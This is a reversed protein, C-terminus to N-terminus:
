SPTPLLLNSGEHMPRPNDHTEAGIRRRHANPHIHRSGIARLSRHIESAPKRGNCKPQRGHKSAHQSRRDPADDRRTDDRRGTLSGLGAAIRAASRGAIRARLGGGTSRFRGATGAATGAYPCTHADGLGLHCIRVAGNGHWACITVGVATPFRDSCIRFEIVVKGSIGEAAHVLVHTAALAMRVQNELVYTRLARITVSVDMPTLKTGIACIAMGYFAPLNRQLRNLVMLISERQNPRMGQQLAFITVLVCGGPLKDAQRGGAIGAVLLVKKSGNDIVDAQSERCGALATMRHVAPEIRFEVM